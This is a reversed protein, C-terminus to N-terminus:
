LRELKQCLMHVRAAAVLNHFPALVEKLVCLRGLPKSEIFDRVGVRRRRNEEAFADAAADAAPAGDAAPEAQEAPEQQQENAPGADECLLDQIMSNMDHGDDPHVARRRPVAGIYAAMVASFLSHHSELLGAWELAEVQGLWNKRSMLPPRRPLLAWAGYTALKCFLDDRDKCCTPGECRHCPTQDHLDSNFLHRLIFRRKRNSKAVGPRVNKVPLFLDFVEDQYMRCSDDRFGPDVVVVDMKSILTSVLLERLKTMAASDGRVVLATHILGSMVNDSKQVVHKITTAGKHCDCPTHLLIQSPWDERLGRETKYNCTARDTCVVRIQHDFLGCLRQLEPVLNVSQLICQRQTEGTTRDMCCLPVPLDTQLWHCQQSAKDQFLFRFQVQTQLIKAHSSVQPLNQVVAQSTELFHKLAPGSSAGRPVIVCQPMPDQPGSKVGINDVTMGSFEASCIRVKAPTEDYRVRILALLPKAQDADSMSRCFENVMSSIMFGNCEATAAGALVLNNQAVNPSKGTLCGLAAASCTLGKGDLVYDIMEKPQETSGGSSKSIRAPARIQILAAALCRQVPSGVRMLLDPPGAGSWEKRAVNRLRAGRAANGVVNVPLALADGAGEGEDAPQQSLFKQVDQRLTLSGKPRGRKSGKSAQDPKPEPPGLLDRIADDLDSEGEARDMQFLVQLLSAGALLAVAPLFWLGHTM